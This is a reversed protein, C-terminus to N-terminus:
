SDLSDSDLQFHRRHSSCISFMAIYTLYAFLNSTLVLVVSSLARFFFGFLNIESYVDMLRIQPSALELNV